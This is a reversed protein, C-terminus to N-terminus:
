RRRYRKIFREFHANDSATVHPRKGHTNKQNNSKRSSDNNVNDGDSEDEGLYQKIEAEETENTHHTKQRTPVIIKKGESSSVTTYQSKQHTRRASKAAQETQQMNQIKYQMPLKVELISGTMLQQKEAMRREYEAVEASVGQNEDNNSGEEANAGSSSSDDVATSSSSSPVSEDKFLSRNSRYQEPINYLEKIDVTPISKKVNDNTRLQDNATSGGGGRDSLDSVSSFLKEKEMSTMYGRKKMEMEVFEEMKKETESKARSAFKGDLLTQQSSQTLTSSLVPQGTAESIQVGKRQSMRQKIKTLEVLKSVMSSHDHDDGSKNHEDTDQDQQPQNDNTSDTTSHRINKARISRKKIM